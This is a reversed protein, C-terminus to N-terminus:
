SVSQSKARRRYAAAEADKGRVADLRTRSGRGPSDLSVSLGRVADQRTRPGLGPSDGSWTRTALGHVVDPYDPRTRPDRGPSDLSV